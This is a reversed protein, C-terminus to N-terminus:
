LYQSTSSRLMWTLYPFPSKLLHAPSSLRPQSCELASLRAQSVEVFVQVWAEKKVKGASCEKPLGARCDAQRCKRKLANRMQPRRRELSLMHTEDCDVERLRRHREDPSESTSSFGFLHWSLSFHSPVLIFYVLM